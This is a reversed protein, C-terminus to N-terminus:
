ARGERAARHQARIWDDMEAHYADNARRDCINATIRAALAAAGLILTVAVMPSKAAGGMILSIFYVTGTAGAAFWAGASIKDLDDALSWLGNARKSEFRSRDPTRTDQM